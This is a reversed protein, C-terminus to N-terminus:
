VFNCILGYTTVAAYIDMTYHSHTIIVLGIQLVSFLLGFLIMCYSDFSSFMITCVISIYTHGSFFYDNTVGYTVFLSSIGPHYWIQNKPIPLSVLFQCLQRLCLGCILRIIHIYNNYYITYFFLYIMCIDILASSIIFLCRAVFRNNMLFNNMTNTIKNELLVDYIGDGSGINLLKYSSIYKQSTHWLGWLVILGILQYM